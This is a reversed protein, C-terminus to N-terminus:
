RIFDDSRQDFATKDLRNLLVLPRSLITETVTALLKCLGATMDDVVEESRKYTEARDYLDYENNEVEENEDGGEEASNLDLTCGNSYKSNSQIQAVRGDNNQQWSCDDDSTQTGLILSKKIAQSSKSEHSKHQQQEHQRAKRDVNQASLTAASSSGSISSAPSQNGIIFGLRYSLVDSLNIMNNSQFIIYCLDGHNTCLSQLLGIIKIYIRAPLIPVRHCYYSNLSVPDILTSAHSAVTSPPKSTLSVNPVIRRLISVLCSVIDYLSLTDIAYFEIMKTAASLQDADLEEQYPKDKNYPLYLLNPMLKPSERNSLQKILDALLRDVSHIIGAPMLGGGSIRQDATTNILERTIRNIKLYFPKNQQCNVNNASLDITNALSSVDTVTSQNRALRQQILLQALRSRIKNTFWERNFSKGALILKQRLKRCKKEIALLSERDSESLSVGGGAQTLHSSHYYNVLSSARSSHQDDSNTEKDNDLPIDTDVIHRLNHIEVAENTTLMSNEYRESISLHHTMSRLHSFLALETGITEKCLNCFKKTNFPKLQLRQNESTSLEKHRTSANTCSDKPQSQANVFSNYRKISLEFAKQRILKLNVEHRRESQEQKQDIRKKLTQVGANYAEKIASIKQDRFQNKEIRRKEKVRQQQEVKQDKMRRRQQIQILKAKREAELNKRREEAAVEKAQKEEFRKQREDQLDQLRAEFEKKRSNLDHRRNQAELNNIFQIESVKSDEDHAKRIIKDLQEQRKAAAKQLKTQVSAKLNMTDEEKWARMEEVKKLIDRFKNARYELFKERAEQARNLRDELSRKRHPSIYKAHSSTIRLCRDPLRDCTSKRDSGKNTEEDSSLDMLHKRIDGLNQHPKTNSSNVEVKVLTEGKTGDPHGSNEDKCKDHRHAAKCVIEGDTLREVGIVQTLEKKKSQKADQKSEPCSNQQRIEDIASHIEKLMEDLEENSATKGMGKILSVVLKHSRKADDPQITDETTDSPAQEVPKDDTLKDSRNDITVKNRMLRRSSTLPYDSAQSGSKKIFNVRQISNPNDRNKSFMALLKDCTKPVAPRNSREDTNTDLQPQLVVPERVIQRASRDVRLSAATQSPEVRPGKLAGRKTQSMATNSSMELKRYRYQHHHHQTQTTNLM